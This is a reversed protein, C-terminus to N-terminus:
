RTVGDLTLGELPAVDLGEALTTAESDSVAPVVRVQVLYRRAVLFTVEGVRGGSSWRKLAPRGHIKLARSDFRADAGAEGRPDLAAAARARINGSEIRVVLQRDGDVYACSAGFVPGTGYSTYF